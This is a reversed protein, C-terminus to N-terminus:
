FICVYCPYFPLGPAATFSNGQSWSTVPEFGPFMRKYFHLSLSRVYSGFHDSGEEFGICAPAVHMPSGRKKVFMVLICLFPCAVQILKEHFADLDILRDGRESYYYVGGFESTVSNRLIEEIQACWFRILCQKFLNLFKFTELCVKSEVRLNSLLQPYKM